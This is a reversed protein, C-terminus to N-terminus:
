IRYMLIMFYDSITNKPITNGTPSGNVWRQTYINGMSSNHSSIIYENSPIINGILSKSIYKLEENTPLFLDLETELITKHIHYWIYDSNYGYKDILNNTNQKGFGFNGTTSELANPGWYVNDPIEFLQKQIVLYRWNSNSPTGDDIGSSLRTLKQDTLNYSGYSAGRDYAIYGYELESGLAINDTPALPTLDIKLSAIDSPYFENLYTRAKIIDNNSAEIPSQYLSDTEDPETGDTTYRVDGNNENTITVTAGIEDATFCRLLVAYKNTNKTAYYSNAPNDKYFYANELDHQASVWVEIDDLVGAEDAYGYEDSTGIFWKDSNRENRIRAVYGWLTEANGWDDTINPISLITNTNELGKGFTDIDVNTNISPDGWIHKEINLDITWYKDEDIYFVKSDVGDVKITDGIKIM